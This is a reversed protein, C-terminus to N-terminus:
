VTFNGLEAVCIKNLRLILNIPRLLPAASASSSASGGVNGVRCEFIADPVSDVAGSVAAFREGM